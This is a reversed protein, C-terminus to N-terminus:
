TCITFKNVRLVHKATSDDDAVAFATLHLSNQSHTKTSVSQKQRKSM